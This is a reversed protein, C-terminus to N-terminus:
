SHWSTVVLTKPWSIFINLCMGSIILAAGPYLAKTDDNATKAATGVKKTRKTFRSKRTSCPMEKGNADTREVSCPERETIGLLQLGADALVNLWGGFFAFGGEQRRGSGAAAARVAPGAPAPAGGVRPTGAPIIAAPLLNGIEEPSPTWPPLNASQGACTEELVPETEVDSDGYARAVACLM